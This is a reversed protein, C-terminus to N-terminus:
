TISSPCVHLLRGFGSLDREEVCRLSKKKVEFVRNMKSNRNKLISSTERHPHQHCEADQQPACSTIGPSRLLMRM